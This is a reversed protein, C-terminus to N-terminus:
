QQEFSFVEYDEKLKQKRKKLLNEIYIRKQARKTKTFKKINSIKASMGRLIKPSEKFYSKGDNPVEKIKTRQMIESLNDKLVNGCSLVKENAFSINAPIFEGTAGITVIPGCLVGRQGCVYVLNPTKISKAKPVDTRLKRSRGEKWIDYDCGYAAFVANEGLIEQYKQTNDLVQEITIGKKNLENLHFDDLSIRIVVPEEDIEFYSDISLRCEEVYKKLDILNDIFEQNYITGNTTLNVAQVRVNKEKLVELLTKIQKPKLALEGGGLALNGIEQVNSLFHEMVDKSMLVNESNGRMCHACALNCKRSLILEANEYVIKKNDFNSLNKLKRYLVM